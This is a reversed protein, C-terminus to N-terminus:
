DDLMHVTWRAQRAPQHARRLRFLARRAANAQAVSYQRIASAVVPGGDAGDELIPSGHNDYISVRGADGTVSVRIKPTSLEVGDPTQRTEFRTPPYADDGKTVAWSRRQTFQGEIAFRIRIVNDDLASVSLVSGDYTCVIGRQHAHWDVLKGPRALDVPLPRTSM